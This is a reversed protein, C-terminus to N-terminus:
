DQGSLGSVTGSDVTEGVTVATWVHDSPQPLQAFEVTEAADRRGGHHGFGLLEKEIERNTIRTKSFGSAIRM